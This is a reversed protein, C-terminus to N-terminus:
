EEAKHTKHGDIEATVQSRLQRYEAEARKIRAASNNHRQSDEQQQLVGRGSAETIQECWRYFMSRTTFRSAGIIVTPLRIGRIGRTTWRWCTCPSVCQERALQVLKIRDSAEAALIEIAFQEMEIEDNTTTNPHRWIVTRNRYTLHGDNVEHPELM